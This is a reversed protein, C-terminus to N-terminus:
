KFFHSLACKYISITINKSEKVKIGFENQALKTSVAKCNRKLKKLFIIFKEQYYPKINSIWIKKNNIRKREVM